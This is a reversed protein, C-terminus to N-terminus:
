GHRTQQLMGEQDAGRQRVIIIPNSKLCDIPPRLGARDDANELPALFTSLPVVGISFSEVYYTHM